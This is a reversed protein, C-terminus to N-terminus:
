RWTPIEQVCGSAASAYDSAAAPKDLPTVPYATFLGVLVGM